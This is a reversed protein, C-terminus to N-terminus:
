RLLIMRTKACGRSSSLKVFYVGSPVDEGRDSRTDWQLLSGSDLSGKYLHRVLRGAVDFIGVDTPIAEDLNFTLSVNHGAPNPSCTIRVPILDAVTWDGVGSLGCGLSDYGADVNIGGSAIMRFGMRRLPDRQAWSLTRAGCGNVWIRGPTADTLYFTVGLVDHPGSDMPPLLPYAGDELVLTTPYATNDININPTVLVCLDIGAIGDCGEVVVHATAPQYPALDIRDLDDTPDASFNIRVTGACSDPVVGCTACPTVPGHQFFSDSFVLFDEIGVVGNDNFDASPDYSGGYAEGFLVLDLLDVWCDHNMETWGTTQYADQGCFECPEFDWAGDGCYPEQPGCNGLSDPPPYANIGGFAVTEFNMLRPPNVQAWQLGQNSHMTCDRIKVWAPESDTVYAHFEGQYRAPSGDSPTMGWLAETSFDGEVNSSAYFCADASTMGVCGELVIFVRFEEFPAIDIRDVDEEADMSFNIRAIGMCSDPVVGCPDCPDVEYDHFYSTGFLYYDGANVFGDDNFDASATWYSGLFPQAFIGFDVINVICDHTMDTYVFGSEWYCDQGCYECAEWIHDGCSRDVAIVAPSLFLLCGIIFLFIFPHLPRRSNM